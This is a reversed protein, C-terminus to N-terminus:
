NFDYGPSLNERVDSTVVAIPEWGSWWGVRGAGTIEYPVCPEPGFAAKVVSHNQPYFRYEVM